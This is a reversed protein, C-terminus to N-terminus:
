CRDCQSYGDEYKCGYCSKKALEIIENVLQELEQQTLPFNFYGDCQETIVFDCKRWREKQKEDFRYKRMDEETYRGKEGFFEDATEIIFIADNCLQELLKM